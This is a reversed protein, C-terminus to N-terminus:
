ENVNIDVPLAIAEINPNYYDYVRVFGGTITEPYQARYQINLNLIQNPEFNRIYLNIKGYNYEYKEISGNFKMQMLSTEITNCGQPINIQVLGNKIINNSLNKVVITQSVIDNVKLEKTLNQTVEINSNNETKEYDVYYEEVIEYYLKGKKMDLSIKNEDSINNFELEYLDIANENIEIEKIEENVKVAITQNSIDSKNNYNNIAKLALITGQTTGWTGYADKQSILYNTMALNTKNNTNEKTLVLSTLATTQISQYKGYTGYYDVINSSIYVNEGDKQASELLDNILESTKKNKTNAFVNAILARTYNDEIKSVNKELYNVSKKLREDEPCVESLAWVIYANMALDDTSSSGGIYTSNYNFTGNSKQVEFLYEKMNQIVKEEVPYVSKLDNLEMLGFATIVPEAPSNGYLSYGGKKDPVEFTLIRQYGSSIYKLAKEKIENNTLNNEELYKLALINPYLSASTQEFCGTPMKFINEMGELVQSMMSPYLKVKLKRTNSIAKEQTFFDLDFSKTTTGSSVVNSKEMGKPVIKLTKEVIDQTENFKSEIRLTKNGFQLIEIPVYIMKTGNAEVSINQTYEGLNSWDNEVVKIEVNKETDTYNHVTVPIKIKDGVVSNTPLTFDIFFDKFVKIKSSTYGVNGNKTNAITQINWTTINDSIQIQTEAMGDKTLIEPIFALSELFVNRVNNEVVEENKESTNEKNDNQIVDIEEDSSIYDNNAGDTRSGYQKKDNSISDSVSPSPLSAGSIDQVDDIMNSKMIGQSIEFPRGYQSMSNLIVILIIIGIIIIASIIGKSEEIEKTEKKVEKKQIKMLIKEFVLYIIIPIFVSIGELYLDLTEFIIITVLYIVEIKTFIGFLEKASKELKKLNRKKEIAVFIAWIVPSAFLLVLTIIRIIEYNDFIELCINFLGVAILPIVGLQIVIKYIYDKMKYLYTVYLVFTLVLDGLLMLGDPIGLEYTLINGFSAGIFSFIAIMNIIDKLWLGFKKSKLSIMVFSITAIIITTFVAITFSKQRESYDTSGYNKYVRYDSLDQKLLVGILDQENNEEIMMSYLDAATMSDDLVIDELALKINDISLDNDALSLVAEDLISVFVASDTSENKENKTSFKINLNDGPKYEEKDTEVSVNLAKNPKIFITKKNIKENKENKITSTIYNLSTSYSDEYYYEKQEQNTDKVYIDVLGTVDELNFKIDKDETEFMKLLENNKYVYVQYNNLDINSDLKLSIDDGQTYKIKDTKIIVGNNDKVKVEVQKLVTHGEMDQSSVAIYSINSLSSIDDSTLTFKGIGNENTIIQKQKGSFSITTHTKVPTGDIKKTLIYVDNEVGKILCNNEPLVELEFVDTCGLIEKKAEILYKSVDTVQIDINNTGKKNVTYTTNFNGDKDTTGYIEMDNIKGVVKAGKVPEGFFYKVNVTINANEGLLYQEKDTNIKAEFTPTIYPNVNFTKSKEFSKRAVKIRYTGSNVENALVFKGSLIGFESTKANEFYVRNDNGDYISVEYEDESIPKDDKKSLIMARFNVEDGPKYIGKDLSIVVNVNNDNVISVNVKKEDRLIGSTAIIKLYYNGTEIEESLPISINANSGEEIKFSTKTGKVKKGESDLLQIKLKGNKSINKKIDKLGIIAELNSETYYKENTTVEIRQKGSCFYFLFNYLAIITLIVIITIAGKKVLNKKM